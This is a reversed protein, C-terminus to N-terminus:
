ELRCTTAFRNPMAFSMRGPTAMMVSQTLLRGAPAPAPAPKWPSDGAAGCDHGFCPIKYTKNLQQLEAQWFRRTHGPQQSLVGDLTFFGIGALEKGLQSQGM